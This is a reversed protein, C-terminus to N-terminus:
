PKVAQAQKVAKRYARLSKATVIVFDEACVHGLNNLYNVTADWAYESGVIKNEVEHMRQMWRGTGKHVELIAVKEGAENHIDFSWLKM